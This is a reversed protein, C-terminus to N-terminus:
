NDDTTETEDREVPLCNTEEIAYLNSQRFWKSLLSFPFMSHGSAVDVAHM